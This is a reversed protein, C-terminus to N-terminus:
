DSVLIKSCPTGFPETTSGRSKIIYIMNKGHNLLVSFCINLALFKRYATLYVSLFNKFYPTLQDKIVNGFIKSFCPLVSFRHHNIKLCIDDNLYPVLPLAKKDLFISHKIMTNVILKCYTKTLTDVFNLSKKPFSQWCWDM